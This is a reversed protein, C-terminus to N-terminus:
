TCQHQYGTWEFCGLYIKLVGFFLWLVLLGVFAVFVLTCALGVTVTHAYMVYSQVCSCYVVCCLVM